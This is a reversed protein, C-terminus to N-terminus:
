PTVTSVANIVASKQPCQWTWLVFPSAYYATVPVRQKEYAQLAAIVARDTVCYTDEQSSQPDTKIYATWTHFILGSKEVATIYGTHQGSGPTQFIAFFYVFAAILILLFVGVLVSIIIKKMRDINNCIHYCCFSREGLQTTYKRM